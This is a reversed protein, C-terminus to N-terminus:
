KMPQWSSRFPQDDPEESYEDLQAHKVERSDIASNIVALDRAHSDPVPAAAVAATSRGGAIQKALEDEPTPDVREQSL